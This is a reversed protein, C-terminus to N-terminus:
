ILISSCYLTSSSPFEWRLERITSQLPEEDQRNFINYRKIVADTNKQGKRGNSVGTIISEKHTQSKQNGRTTIETDKEFKTNIHM